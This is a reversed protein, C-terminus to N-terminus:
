ARRGITSFAHEAIVIALEPAIRFQRVLRKVQLVRHELNESTAEATARLDDNRLGPAGLAPTENQSPWPERKRRRRTGSAHM